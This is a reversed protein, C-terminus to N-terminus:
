FHKIKSIIQDCASKVEDVSVAEVSKKICDENKYDCDIFKHYLIKHIQGYPVWTNLPSRVNFIVIAPLNTAAAMHVVGTDNSILFDCNKFIEITELIENGVKLIFEENKLGKTIYKAKELDDKGGVIVAKVGYKEKLYELVQKFRDAPWINSLKKGGPCVAVIIDKNNKWKMLMNKVNDAIQNSINFDYEIKSFRIGNKILIEVLSEVETKVEMYDVQIKKFFKVARIEFGFASKVGLIKAFIMNRFITLFSAIEDPFQIFLDFKKLRLKKVLGRQKKFSSIDDGYYTIIEDFYWVEDLIEKAGPAGFKGPSTLLTIKSNSYFNRVTIFAPVACVIDGINGVKYILINKPNKTKFPFLIFKFIILIFNLFNKTQKVTFLQIKKILTIKM